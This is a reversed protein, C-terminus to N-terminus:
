LGSLYGAHGCSGRGYNGMRPDTHNGGTGTIKKRVRGSLSSFFGGSSHNCSFRRRNKMEAEKGVKTNRPLFEQIDKLSEQFYGTDDFGVSQSIEYIKKDTTEMYVKAKEIRKKLIVDFLNQGSEKKM